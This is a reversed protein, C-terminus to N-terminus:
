NRPENVKVLYLKNLLIVNEEEEDDGDEEYIMIM